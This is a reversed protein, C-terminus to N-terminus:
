KYSCSSLLSYGENFNNSQMSKKLYNKEENLYNNFDNDRSNMNYKQNLKKNLNEIYSKSDVYKVSSNDETNNIDNYDIKMNMNGTNGINGMNGMSGFNTNLNGKFNLSSGSTYNM